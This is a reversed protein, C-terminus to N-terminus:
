SLRLFLSNLILVFYNDQLNLVIQLVTTEHINGNLLISVISITEFKALVDRIM